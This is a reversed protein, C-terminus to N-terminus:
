SCSRIKARHSTLRPIPYQGYRKLAKVFFKYSTLSVSPPIPGDCAAIYGGGPAAQGIKLAGELKISKPDGSALIDTDMGGFLVIRDGYEDKLSSLVMGAKAQIPHIADFGCELFLPIFKNLCGDSHMLIPLNRKQFISCIRKHAPMVVRRYLEPSFFPGDKSGLDDFVWLADVLDAYEDAIRAWYRSIAMFVKSMFEPREQMHVLTPGLGGFLDISLEFIGVINLTVFLEERAEKITQKLKPQVGASGTELLPLVKNEFDEPQKVAPELHLKPGSRHKWIKTKGGWQNRIVQFDGSDELVIQDSGGPPPAFVSYIDMGFFKIGEMNLWAGDIGMPMGENRWREVTETWTDADMFGVRDPEEHALIMAIRDRPKM